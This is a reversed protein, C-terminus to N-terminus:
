ATGDVAEEEPSLAGTQVDYNHRAKLMAVAAAKGADFLSEPYELGDEFLVIKVVEAGHPIFFMGTKEPDIEGDTVSVRMAPVTTM